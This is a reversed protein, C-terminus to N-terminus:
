MQCRKSLSSSRLGSKFHRGVHAGQTVFADLENRRLFGGMNHEPALLAIVGSLRNCRVAGGRWRRVPVSSSV